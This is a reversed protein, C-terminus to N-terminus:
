KPSKGGDAWRPRRRTPSNGSSPVIWWQKKMADDRLAEAHLANMGDVESPPRERSERDLQAASHAGPYSRTM